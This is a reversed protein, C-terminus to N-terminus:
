DVVLWQLAVSQNNLRHIALLSKGIQSYGAIIKLTIALNKDNEAMKKCIIFSLKKWVRKKMSAFGEWCWARLWPSANQPRAGGSFHLAGRQIDGASHWGNLAGQQIGGTSHGGNLAGRQIGRRTSHGGASHRGRLTEGSSNCRSGGRM